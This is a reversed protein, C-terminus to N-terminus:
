GGSVAQVIQLRDGEKLPVDLSELYRTLKGNHLVLVHQRVEGAEDLVLTALIPWQTRLKALASALTAASVPVVARGNVSDRLVRPVELVVEVEHAAEAQRANPANGTEPM